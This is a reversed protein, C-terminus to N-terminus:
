NQKLNSWVNLRSFFDFLFICEIAEALYFCCNQMLMHKIESFKYNISSRSFPHGAALVSISRHLTPHSVTIWKNNMVIDVM